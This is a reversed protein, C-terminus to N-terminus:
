AELDKLFLEIRAPLVRTQLYQMVFAQYEAAPGFYQEVFLRDVQLDHRAGIWELYNSYPWDELQLAVGEKIPIAHIYRCLHLLYNQRRIKKVSYNAELRAASTQGDLKGTKTPDAFIRQLFQEAKDLGNQRVLFHAHNPLLCYAILTLDLAQTAEKIQTLAVCFDAADPLPPLGERKYFHYYDGPKYFSHPKFM